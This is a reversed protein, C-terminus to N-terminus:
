GPQECAMSSLQCPSHVIPPLTRFSTFFAEYEPLRYVWLLIFIVTFLFVGALMRYRPNMIPIPEEFNLEYMSILDNIEFHFMLYPMAHELIVNDIYSWVKVKGYFFFLYLLVSVHIICQVIHQNDIIINM